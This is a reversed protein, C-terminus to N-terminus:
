RKILRYLFLSLVELYTVRTLAWAKEEDSNRLPPPSVRDKRGTEPYPFLHKLVKRVCRQHSDARGAECVRSETVPRELPLLPPFIFWVGVM